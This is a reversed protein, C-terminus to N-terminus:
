CWAIGVILAYYSADTYGDRVKAGTMNEHIGSRDSLRYVEARWSM